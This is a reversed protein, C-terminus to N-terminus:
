CSSDEVLDQKLPKQYLEWPNEPAEHWPPLVDRQKGYLCFIVKGLYEYDQHLDASNDEHTVRVAGTKGVWNKYNDMDHDEIQFSNFFSFFRKECRTFDEPIYWLYHWLKGHYGSVKYTIEFCRKGNSYKKSTVKSIQVRHDGEPIEIFNHEKYANPNIKCYAM